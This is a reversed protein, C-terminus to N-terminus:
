IAEPWGRRVVFSEHEGRAFVSVCRHATLQKRALVIMSVGQSCQCLRDATLQKRAVARLATLRAVSDATSGCTARAAALQAARAARLATGSAECEEAEAGALLRPTGHSRLSTM